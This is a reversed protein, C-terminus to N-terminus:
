AARPRGEADARTDNAALLGDVAESLAAVREELWDVLRTTRRRDRRADGRDVACDRGAASV